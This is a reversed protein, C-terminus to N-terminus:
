DRPLPDLCSKKKRKAKVGHVGEERREAQLLVSIEVQCGEGTGHQASKNVGLPGQARILGLWDM